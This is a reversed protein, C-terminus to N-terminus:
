IIAMLIPLDNISETDLMVKLIADNANDYDKHMMEESRTPKIGIKEEYGFHGYLAITQSNKQLRAFESNQFVHIPVLKSVVPDGHNFIHLNYDYFDIYYRNNRSLTNISNTFKTVFERSEEDNYDIGMDVIATQAAILFGTYDIFHTSELNTAWVFEKIKLMLQKVALKHIDTDDEFDGMIRDIIFDYPWYESGWQSMNNPKETMYKNLNLM